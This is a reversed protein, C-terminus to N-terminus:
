SAVERLRSETLDRDTSESAQHVVWQPYPIEIGLREFEKKIRRLLERKVGWQMHPRTKVLFKVVVASEGLTEVGQMEPQGLMQPGFQPDDRMEKALDMLVEMVRDVNERYGVPVQFVARSWGHTQNSVKNVQGHPIFHVTGEEDRLVTMRLSIDEVVGTTDAITVVNGVSYQNEALIMFGTFYDKILNQSGFAVAAGVVAASGFLVSVDIGSTHLIALLGLTLVAMSVAYQFVRQLTEARQERELVSGHRSRRVLAGIGRKAVVRVLWWVLLLLVMLGIVKPATHRVWEAIRYPAVPSRLLALKTEATGVSGKAEEVQKLAQARSEKLRELLSRSETVRTTQQAIEARASELRREEAALEDQLHEIEPGEAGSKRRAQLDRRQQQVASNAAEADQQTVNLLREASQLDREFIAISEDLVQVRQNASELDRRRSELDRRADLVQQAEVPVPSQDAVPAEDKGQSSAPKAESAATAHSESDTSPRGTPADHKGIGVPKSNAMAAVPKVEPEASKLRELGKEELAIKESLIELQEQVAKRRSIVRDFNARTAEREKQLRELAQRQAAQEESNSTADLAAREATVRSDKETFEASKEEFEKQLEQALRTLDAQRQRDAAVLRELGTIREAATPRAQGPLSSDAAEAAADKPKTETQGAFSPSGSHCVLLFLVLVRILTM